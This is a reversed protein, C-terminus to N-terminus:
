DRCPLVEEAVCNGGRGKALYLARDAAAILRAESPSTTDLSLDALGGSVTVKISADSAAVKDCIREAVRRAARADTDPLIVAFEDGGYRSATDCGLLSDRIAAAVRVLMQDGAPHGWRDNVAKLQDVDMLLLSLRSQYRLCRATERKLTAEFHYRNFLGTLPDTVSRHELVELIEHEVITPAVLDGSINLLYDLAAVSLGVVLSIRGGYIVRSYLDRGFRDTGFWNDASPSRLRHSPDISIPDVTALWPAAISAVVIALLLVGGIAVTPHRRIFAVLATRAPPAVAIAVTAIASTV